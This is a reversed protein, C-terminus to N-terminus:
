FMGFYIKLIFNINQTNQKYKYTYIPFGKVFCCVYFKLSLFIASLITDGPTNV